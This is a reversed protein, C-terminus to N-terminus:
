RAAEPRAGAQAHQVVDDEVNFEALAGLDQWLPRPDQLWAAVHNRVDLWLEFGAAGLHALTDNSVLRDVNTDDILHRRGGSSYSQRAHRRRCGWVRAGLAILLEEQM